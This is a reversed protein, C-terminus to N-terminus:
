RVIKRYFCLTITIKHSYYCHKQILFLSTLLVVLHELVWLGQNKHHVYNQIIFETKYSLGQKDTYVGNGMM